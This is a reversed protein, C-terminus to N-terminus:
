HLVLSGCDWRGHCCHEPSDAFPKCTARRHAQAHAWWCALEGMHQQLMPTTGTQHLIVATAESIEQALAGLHSLVDPVM